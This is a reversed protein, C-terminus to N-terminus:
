GGRRNIIPFTELGSFRKSVIYKLQSKQSRPFSIVEGTSDKTKYLKTFSGVCQSTKYTLTFFGLQQWNNVESRM